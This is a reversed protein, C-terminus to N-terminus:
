SGFFDRMGQQQEGFTPRDDMPATMVFRRLLEVQFEYPLANTTLELAGACYRALERNTLSRPQVGRM